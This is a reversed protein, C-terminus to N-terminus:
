MGIRRFYEDRLPEYQGQVWHYNTNQHLLKDVDKWEDEYKRQASKVEMVNVIQSGVAVTVIVGLLAVCAGIFSEPTIVSHPMVEFAWITIVLLCLIIAAISLCLAWTSQKNQTKM